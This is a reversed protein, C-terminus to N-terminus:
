YGRRCAATFLLFKARPSLQLLLQKKKGAELFLRDQSSEDIVPENLFAVHKIFSDKFPFFTLNHSSQLCKKSLSQTVQENVTYSKGRPHYIFQLPLVPIPNSYDKLHNLTTYLSDYYGKMSCNLKTQYVM